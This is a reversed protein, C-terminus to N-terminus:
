TLVVEGTMVESPTSLPTESPNKSLRSSEKIFSDLKWLKALSTQKFRLIGNEDEEVNDQRVVEEVEDRLPQIYETRTALDLVIFTLANTTTNISAFSVIRLIYTERDM